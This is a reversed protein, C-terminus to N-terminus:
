VVLIESGRMNTCVYRMVGDWMVKFARQESGIDEHGDIIKEQLQLM